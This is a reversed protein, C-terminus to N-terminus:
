NELKGIAGVAYQQGAVPVIGQMQCLGLRVWADDNDDPESVACLLTGRQKAQKIASALCAESVVDVEGSWKRSSHCALM